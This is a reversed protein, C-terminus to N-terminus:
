DPEEHFTELMISVDRDPMIFTSPSWSDTAGIALSLIPSEEPAGGNISIRALFNDAIAGENKFTTSIGVIDGPHVAPTIAQDVGGVILDWAWGGASLTLRNINLFGEILRAVTFSYTRDPIWAM